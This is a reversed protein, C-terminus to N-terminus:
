RYRQIGILCSSEGVNIIPGLVLFLVQIYSYITTYNYGM